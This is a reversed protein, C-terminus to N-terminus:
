DFEGARAGKVFAGFEAVTFSLVPGSPDKSDRVLRGGDLRDAVEVCNGGNNSSFSSKRWTRPQDDAM